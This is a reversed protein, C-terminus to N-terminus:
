SPGRPGGVPFGRHALRPFNLEGVLSWWFGGHRFVSEFGRVVDEHGRVLAGPVVWRSDGTLSVPFIGNKKWRAGIQEVGSFASFVRFVLEM